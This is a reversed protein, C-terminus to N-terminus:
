VFTLTYSSIDVWFDVCCGGIGSCAMNKGCHVLMYMCPYTDDKTFGEAKKHQGMNAAGNILINFTFVDAELNKADMAHLLRKARRFDAAKTAADILTNYTRATVEIENEEMVQLEEEAADLQGAASFTQMMCHHTIQDPWVQWDEMDSRIKKAIQLKANKACAGLYVNFFAVDPKLTVFCLSSKSSKTPTWPDKQFDKYLRIAEDARNAEVLFKGYITWSHKDLLNPHVDLVQSKAEEFAGVRLLAVLMRNVSFTDPYFGRKKLEAFAKRAINAATSKDDEM